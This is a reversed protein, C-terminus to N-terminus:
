ELEMFKFLEEDLINEDGIYYINVFGVGERFISTLKAYKYRNKTDIPNFYAYSAWDANLMANIDSSPSIKKIEVEGDALEDILPTTLDNFFFEGDDPIINVLALVKGQNISVGLQYDFAGLNGNGLSTASGGDPPVFELEFTSLIEAQSLPQSM